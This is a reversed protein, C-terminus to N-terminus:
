VRAASGGEAVRAVDDWEVAGTRLCRAPQVTTDVVTSPAGDCRGGDLVVLEPGFAAAVDAATVLPPRSHLNASTTALPGLARCLARALEHAPCRLGITDGAGGLEWSLGRRRPVVITLAGPWFHDALRAATPSLGDPGALTEAQLRDAVLVPLEVSEPRGKLAFLSSTAGPRLPSVALGYVTDTPIAVVAGAALAEIAKTM